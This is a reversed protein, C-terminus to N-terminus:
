HLYNNLKFLMCLIWRDMLDLSLFECACTSTQAAYLMQKPALVVSLMGSNRQEDASINRRKYIEMLSVLASSLSRHMPTLDENLKKLPSDYDLIMQALRPYKPESTGEHLEYAANYIGILSKREDIRSLMIMCCIYNTIM